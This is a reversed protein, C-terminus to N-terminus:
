SEVPHRGVPPHEVLRVGSAELQEAMHVHDVEIIRAISAAIAHITPVGGETRMSRLLEEELGERLRQESLGFSLSAIETSMERRRDHERTGTSRSGPM